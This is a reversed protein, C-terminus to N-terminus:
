RVAGEGSRPAYTRYRGCEVGSEPSSKPLLSTGPVIAQTRTLSFPLTNRSWLQSKENSRCLHVLMAPEARCRTTPTTTKLCVIYLVGCLGLSDLFRYPERLATDVSARVALVDVMVTFQPSPYKRGSSTPLIAQRFLPGSSRKTQSHHFDLLTAASPCKNSYVLFNKLDGALPQTGSSCAGFYEPMPSTPLQRPSKPM